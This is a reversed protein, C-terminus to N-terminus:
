WVREVVVICVETNGCGLDWADWAEMQVGATGYHVDEVGCEVGAGLARVGSHGSGQWHWVAFVGYAM